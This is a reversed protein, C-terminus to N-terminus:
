EPSWHPARKEIFASVGERGERSSRAAAIGRATREILADDLPERAVARILEKAARQARPAGRCIAEALRRGEDELGAAPVVEHVLGLRRAEHAGIEEATLAYRRAHRPGIAAVLYPAIVSPILGLRVESLRFSAEPAALVIDCAAVLGVGGGFARGQVLAITPVALADLRHVAGALAMADALGEAESANAMRRMWELDAGACFSPGRAALIVVRASPHAGVRRLAADLDGVMADDFANHREPRDLTVRVVGDDAVAVQVASGSV